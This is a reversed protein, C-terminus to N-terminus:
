NLIRFIINGFAVMSSKYGLIVQEKYAKAIDREFIPKKNKDFMYEGKENKIIGKKFDPAFYMPQFCMAETYYKRQNETVVPKTSQEKYM